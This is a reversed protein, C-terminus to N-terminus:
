KQDQASSAPEEAPRKKGFVIDPLKLTKGSQATFEAKIMNERDIPDSIRYTAGPILAPVTIRGEADTLPGDWHNLRDINAVVDSDAALKGAEYAKNNFRPFGPTVIMELMLHQRAMPKGAADLMRTAVSGCPALHVVVEGGSQRGSLEVTAGLKNKADLFYVPCSKTADLGHVEFRGDRVVDPFGRWNPSHALIKLRSIMLAEAVPKGDPNLLRGKVSAGRRLTVTVDHTPGVKLDLPVFAHAYSRLGGPKGIALERSGLETLIFHPTPAHILLTGRGSLVCLSFSGDATSVTTNEWGSLLEEKRNPNDDRPIYQVSTQDVPKGSQAETVKGRVLVGRPLQLEVEQKLAAKPWRVLKRLALYPEGDPAYATVQFLRGPTPNIHFRGHADARGDLGYWSGLEDMGAYVSLRANPVPKGTDAYRVVGQILHAPELPRSFEGAGDKDPDIMFYQKAYREDGLTLRAMTGKGVGSIMFRGQADTIMPAPWFPLDKSGERLQVGKYEGKTPRFVMDLYVRVGAAPQGQLDVFRGHVVHEKTLRLEADHQAADPNLEQWGIAHGSGGAVAMVSKFQLVSTRAVDLGFRGNADAKTVGLVRPGGESLEGGKYPVKPEGVIAVGAGALPKGDVDLVRGAVSMTKKEKPQAAPRDDPTEFAVAPQAPAQFGLLGVAAAAISVTLAVLLAAMRRTLRMGLLTTQVLGAVGTSAMGAEACAARIASSALSKPVAETAVGAALLAAPLGLGRRELRRRLRARAEDLRRKFTRLSLGLQRSAEDCTRGELYCLVLPLRHSDALRQLEGYLVTMLERGTVEALPDQPAPTERRVEHRIRDASRARARIAAHYAVRYLWGAVSGANGVSHAKRALALFTTQFADEADHWGHLLRRCVGLVLPGHRQVLMAFAAEDRRRVFRDLLQGDPV